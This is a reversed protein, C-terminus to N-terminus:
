KVYDNMLFLEAQPNGKGGFNGKNRSVNMKKLLNTSVIGIPEM